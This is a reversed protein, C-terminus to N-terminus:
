LKRWEREIIDYAESMRRLSIIEERDHRSSLRNMKQHADVGKLRITEKIHKMKEEDSM